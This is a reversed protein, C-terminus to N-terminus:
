KDYSRRGFGSPTRRGVIAELLELEENSHNIVPAPQIRTGKQSQSTIYRPEDHSKSVILESDDPADNASVAVQGYCTCLFTM